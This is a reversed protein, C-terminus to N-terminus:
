NELDYKEHECSKVNFTLYFEVTIQKQETLNLTLERQLTIFIRAFIPISMKCGFLDVLITKGYM